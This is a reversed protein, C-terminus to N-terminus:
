PKLITWECTLHWLYLKPSLNGNKNFNTESRSIHLICFRRYNATGGHKNISLGANMPSKRDWMNWSRTCNSFYPFFCHVLIETSVSSTIEAKSVAKWCTPILMNVYVGSWQHLTSPNSFKVWSCCTCVVKFFFFNFFILHCGGGFVFCGWFWSTKKQLWHYERKINQQSIKVSKWLGLRYGKKVYDRLNMGPSVGSFTKGALQTGFRGGWFYLKSFM